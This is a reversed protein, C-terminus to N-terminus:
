LTKTKPNNTYVNETKGNDRTSRKIREYRNNLLFNNYKKIFTREKIKQLVEM